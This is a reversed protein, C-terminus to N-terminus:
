EIGKLKRYSHSYKYIKLSNTVKLIVIFISSLEYNLFSILTPKSLIDDKTPVLDFKLVEFSIIKKEKWIIFTFNQIPTSNYIRPCEFTTQM